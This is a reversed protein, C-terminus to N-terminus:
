KINTTKNSLEEETIGPVISRWMDKEEATLKRTKVQSMGPNTALHSLSGTQIQSLGKTIITKGHTAYYAQELEVGKAWLDLTEKSLDTVKLQQGTVQNIAALQSQIYTEKERQEIEELKKFRPDDALRQELLPKVVKEVDEPDLGSNRVLKDQEAKKMDAYSPFGLEKALADKTKEETERRVTNIRNIMNQTLNEDSGQPDPSSPSEELPNKFLEEVNIELVENAGLANKNM